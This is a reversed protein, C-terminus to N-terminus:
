PEPLPRLRRLPRGPLIEKLRLARHFGRTKLALRTMGIIANMPTRIEHSMNALFDSKARTAAEAAEKAILLEAEARRRKTIDEDLSVVYQPNRADDRLLSFRGNAIVIRGDRRIFRQEWEGQERKGQLLEAYRAADRAREDPQVIADWQELRSLEAQTYGLMEHLARNSFHDGSQINYIGIGIQANEFISRFLQESARLAEAARTRETVDEHLDVIYQPKGTHDRLL